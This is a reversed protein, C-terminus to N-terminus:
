HETEPQTAEEFTIRARPYYYNNNSNHVTYACFTM